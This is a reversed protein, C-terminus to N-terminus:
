SSSDYELAQLVVVTDACTSKDGAQTFLRSKWQNLLLLLLAFVEMEIAEHKSVRHPMTRFNSVICKKKDMWFKTFIKEKKLPYIRVPVAGEQNVCDIVHNVDKMKRAVVVVMSTAM